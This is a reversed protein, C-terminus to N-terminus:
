PAATWSTGDWSAGVWHSAPALNNLATQQAAYDNQLGTQIQAVTLGHLQGSQFTQEVTAGTQLATLEATTYGWTPGGTQPPVASKVNPLPITRAAPAILWYVGAVVVSGDPQNQVSTVIIERAM